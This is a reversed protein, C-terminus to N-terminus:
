APVREGPCTQMAAVDLAAKDPIKKGPDIATV